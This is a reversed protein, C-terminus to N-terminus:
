KSVTMSTCPVGARRRLRSPETALYVQRRSGTQVHPMSYACPLFPSRLDNVAHVPCKGGANRCCFAELACTRPDPVCVRGEATIRCACQGTIGGPPLHSFDPAVADPSSLKHPGLYAKLSRGSRPLRADRVRLNCKSFGTRRQKISRGHAGNTHDAAALTPAHTPARVPTCVRQSFVTAPAIPPPASCFTRCPRRASVARM